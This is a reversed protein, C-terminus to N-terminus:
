ARFLSGAKRIELASKNNNNNAGSAVRALQLLQLVLQFERKNSATKPTLFDKKNSRWLRRKHPRLHAIIGKSRHRAPELLPSLIEKKDTPKPFMSRRCWLTKAVSTSFLKAWKAVRPWQPFLERLSSPKYTQHWKKIRSNTIWLVTYLFPQTLGLTDSTIAEQPRITIPYYLLTRLIMWSM